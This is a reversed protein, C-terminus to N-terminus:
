LPPSRRDAFAYALTAAVHIRASQGFRQGTNYLRLAASGAVALDLQADLGVYVFDTAVDTTPEAVADVTIVNLVGAQLASEWFTSFSGPERM